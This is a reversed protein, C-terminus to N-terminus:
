GDVRTTTFDSLITRQRFGAPNLRSEWILQRKEGILAGADTGEDKEAPVLGPTLGGGCHHHVKIYATRGAEPGQGKSPIGLYRSSSVM